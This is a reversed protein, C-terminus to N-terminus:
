PLRKKIMNELKKIRGKDVNSDTADEDLSLDFQSQKNGSAGSQNMQKKFIDLILQQENRKISKMDLLKQFEQIATAEPLLKVYQEVFQQHPRTPCMCCKIILEARKMGSIVYKTYNTPSKHKIQSGISPMDLLIVKLSHTDLLLQECGMVNQTMQLDELQGSTIAAHSSQLAAASVVMQTPRLKYLNNIYRTIFVNIFKLCFQTFYKRSVSLNDRICPILAEFQRKMESVFTSQDGVAQIQHWNMKIMRQMAIECVVSEVLRVMIQICSSIIRHYYNQEDNMDVKEVLSPIIKEKLKEELQQITELCYEATTLVCCLNVLENRLYELNVEQQTSNISDKILNHFAATSFNERLDRLGATISQAGTAASSLSSGTTPGVGGVNLANKPLRSELIRSAYEKLYKKFIEALDLMPQGTSLQTCQVLCKKYFVFLDACSPFITSKNLIPDFPQKMDISFREFIEMLNKEISDTYILLHPIFAAGILNYFPIDSTANPDVTSRDTLKVVQHGTFRKGLLVEFQQTKQIAYLLLKVDIEQKRIAMIRSLSRHTIACFEIAICESLEWEPPFVHPYKGEFDLLMRKLWTYRKDIKDLWAIDQNDAFLQNYEELQM